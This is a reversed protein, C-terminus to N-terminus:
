MRRFNSLYYDDTMFSVGYAERLVQIDEISITGPANMIKDMVGNVWSPDKGDLSFVSEHIAFFQLEIDSVRQVIIGMAELINLLFPCRHQAGAETAAEIGNRDCYGAVFPTEFFNRYVSAKTVVKKREVRYLYSLMLQVAPMKLFVSSVVMGHQHDNEIVEKFFDNFSQTSSRMDWSPVTNEDNRFSLDLRDWFASLVECIKEGIPTLQLSYDNMGVKRDDVILGLEMLAQLKYKTQRQYGGIRGEGLGGRIRIYQEDIHSGASNGDFLTKLIYIIHGLHVGQPFHYSAETFEGISRLFKVWTGYQAIYSAIKFEGQQNIENQTPKRGLSEALTYYADILDEKTIARQQMDQNDLIQEVEADFQVSCNPSYEYILKEIRGNHPNKQETVSKSLYKRLNNAKQYNSIFDLVTVNSKGGCMRLGRGLQQMFVTRSETPRLFLLVQVNPFDIGENFLDVTFAIAYKNERFGKILDAQDNSESTIAVSPIGKNSFFDAMANAHVISCCFGIAKNCQGIEIYKQYIAENRERIILTRELDEIRYKIGNYRIRSYDINDKLGYYNYPVLFGNEIAEILTYEFVKQYDFLEFIDKRDMRDPTATLGLMFFNPKFYDLILKYSEAQAHHVEDIIVYDFEDFMFNYLVVPNRLTDKSAFLVRADLGEQVDGTLMGVIETPYVAKFAERSQALIDIRHVIFLIKGTVKQSDLASLYTKGTGTPLVVVGKKWGMRRYLDLANLAQRQLANPELTYNDLIEPVEHAFTKLLTEQVIKRTSPDLLQNYSFRLLKWGALLIENQRTLNDDFVENPIIGEAHYSEGNVEIALRKDNVVLAFDIRRNRGASDIFPYQPVVYKISKSGLIPYLFDTLMLDESQQIIRTSYAEKFESLTVEEKEELVNQWSPRNM